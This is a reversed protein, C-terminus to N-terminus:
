IGTLDPDGDDAFLLEFDDDGGGGEGTGGADGGGNLGDNTLALVLPRPLEGHRLILLMEDHMFKHVIDCSKGDAEYDRLAALILDGACVLVKGRSRRMSGRIRGLRTEGDGCLVRARGNGLMATVVGYQQADDPAPVERHRESNGKRGRANRLQAKYM